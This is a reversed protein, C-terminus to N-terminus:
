NAGLRIGTTEEEQNGEEEGEAEVMMAQTQDSQESHTVLQSVPMLDDEESSTEPVDEKAAAVPTAQVTPGALRGRTGRTRQSPRGRVGAGRKRQQM